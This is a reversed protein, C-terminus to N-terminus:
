NATSTSLIHNIEEDTYNSLNRLDFHYLINSHPRKNLESDILAKITRIEGFDSTETRIADEPRILTKGYPIYDMAEYLRTDANFKFWTTDSIDVGNLFGVFRRKHFLLQWSYTPYAVDLHLPYNHLHKLYPKVDAENIISNIADPDNFNGTNYVMLVGYDVPPVKRSLQHLRITSSLHWALSDSAIESRVSDCVAFFLQETSTTWDCDLQLGSVNPLENYSCMNKVRTVVNRALVGESGKSKKLADLTIYVVPVFEVSAFSDKLIYFTEYPMRLTANPVVEGLDEIVDFMRLYIRGINHKRIFVLDASDPAFTTRWYYVSQKEEHSFRECHQSSCACFLTLSIFLIVIYKMNYTTNLTFRIYAFLYKM